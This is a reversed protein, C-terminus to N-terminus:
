TPTPKRGSASSMAVLALALSPANGTTTLMTSSSPESAYTYPESAPACMTQDAIDTMDFRTRDWANDGSPMDGDDGGFGDNDDDTILM